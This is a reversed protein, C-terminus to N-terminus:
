TRGESRLRELEAQLETIRQAQEFWYPVARGEPNFARLLEEDPRFSIDLEQSHYRGDTQPTWPQIMDGVRRWAQVQSSLFQARPDFILYEPIGMLVLYGFRKGAQRKGRRTIELSVDYQWTSASAIEIVLSPPGEVVVDLDQRREPGLTPHVSVDPSPRWDTGDPKPGLLTLQDGVHWPWQRELALSKLSTTLARIADQHWDAGVVDEETDDHLWSFSLVPESQASM